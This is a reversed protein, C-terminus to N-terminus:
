KIINLKSGELLNAQGEVILEDGEKLENSIIEIKDDFRKGLEINIQKAVGNQNIFVYRNNTGEQKLIAISPVVVSNIDKLKTEIFTFMGPRLLEENNEILVETKFTRTNVDITPYVKYVEGKFVKEPYIDTKIFAVMGNKIDPYHSQSINVIAKLPNIQMLSVIAAKGSSNPTGSYLEGNEYYKGTVVGDIPSTLTVNEKLLEYSAKAIEYQTKAQKYQQESISGLQYLTDTSKFNYEAIDLQAVSQLYQTKDMEAIVQGKTVKSGIDVLIKNIRGPSAPAYNIEKYANLNATYEITRPIIQKKISQVRVPFVKETNETNDSIETNSKNSCSAAILTLIFMLKLKYISKM